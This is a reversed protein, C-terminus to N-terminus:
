ANRSTCWWRIALVVALILGVLAVVIFGTDSAFPPVGFTPSTLLAFLSFYLALLGLRWAKVFLSIIALPASVLSLLVAPTFAAAGFYYAALSIVVALFGTAMKGNKEMKKM